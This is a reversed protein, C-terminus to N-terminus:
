SERSNVNDDASYAKGFGSRSYPPDLVSKKVVQGVCPHICEQSPKTQEPYGYRDTRTAEQYLDPSTKKPGVIQLFRGRMEINWGRGGQAM